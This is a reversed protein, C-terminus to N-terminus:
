HHLEEEFTDRSRGNTTICSIIPKNPNYRVEISPTVDITIEGPLFRAREAAEFRDALERLQQPSDIVITMRTTAQMDKSNYLKESM